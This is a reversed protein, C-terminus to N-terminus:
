LLASTLGCVVLLGCLTIELMPTPRVQKLTEKTQPKSAWAILHGYAIVMHVSLFVLGIAIRSATTLLWKCTAITRGEKVDNTIESYSDELEDIQRQAVFDDCSITQDHTQM